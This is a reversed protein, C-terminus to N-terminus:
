SVLRAHGEAACPHKLFYTSIKLCDYYYTITFKCIYICNHVFALATNISIVEDLYLRKWKQVARVCVCICVCVSVSVSVCVYFFACLCVCACVYM